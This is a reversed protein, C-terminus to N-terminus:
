APSSTREPNPRARARRRRPPQPQALGHVDACSGRTRETWGDDRSQWGGRDGAARDRGPRAHHACGAREARPGVRRRRRRCDRHREENRRCNRRRGRRVVRVSPLVARPIRGARAGHRPSRTVGGAGRDAAPAGSRSRLEPGLARRRSARGRSGAAIVQSMRQLTDTELGKTTSVLIAAAGLYPRADRMVARCGHSPIASVVMDVGEIAAAISSLVRLNAPFPVGPLYAANERQQELVPALAADRAWLRVDHGAAALHVSLATGWSGAGLVAMTKM